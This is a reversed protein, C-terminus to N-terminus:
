QYEGKIPPLSRPERRKSLIVEAIGKQIKKLDELLRTYNVKQRDNPNASKAAEQVLQITAFIEDHVRKLAQRESDTVAHAPLILLTLLIAATLKKRM